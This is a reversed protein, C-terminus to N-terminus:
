KVRRVLLDVSPASAEATLESALFVSPGFSPFAARVPLSGVVIRGGPENKFRDVLANLGGAAGREGGREVAPPPPPAPAPASSPRLAPTFPGPDTDVRLAGLQPEVRFRPSYHLEVGTRSVPLDLAPLEVRARGKDVWTDIQQLYLLEVVFTPAEENARGKELPLLVANTEAVGPRIPRGGVQASWITSGAPLTAKLFSRQNNRIAYRAEVLLRGDESALARYRAEEVNAISVAQPTYRVVVVTLARADTGALPRHRFAIMSPSERGAVLDGLESPDAPEFGRAQRGRIEGAGAVDVAVGGTEREASPMRVLPVDISGDRATKADGAVVFSVETATPELLKVRLLGGNTEWDAVTPGNVQNVVLGAPIALSVERALGQLVEVRVAAAVQCADEGLGVVQTVRARVRLPQEARRDDVKRKWRMTLAQNPLGFATWRSESATEGHDALFGGALSLDVGSKPLALRVRSIPSPSAPLTMSEAGGSTALPIVVDLTLISRGAHSLLVQPPPGDVLAVPQGDLSAERVMLGAPIQLRTWGERLVDITLLARGAVADTDVRLDYDVRTLTADVPPAPIPAPTPNARDRLARYEDVPLVVWGDPPSTTQAIPVAGLVFACVLVVALVLRARDM